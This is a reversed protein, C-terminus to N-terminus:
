FNGELFFKLMVLFYLVFLKLVVYVIVERFLIENKRESRIFENM